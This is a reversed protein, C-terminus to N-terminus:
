QSDSSEPAYPVETDPGKPTGSHDGDDVCYTQKDLAGGGNVFIYQWGAEEFVAHCGDILGMWYGKEFSAEAGREWGARDGAARGESYGATEGATYGTGNGIAYGIAISAVAAVATIAYAQAATLARKANM